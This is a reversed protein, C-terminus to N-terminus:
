PDVPLPRGPEPVIPVAAFPIPTTAPGDSTGISAGTEIPTPDTPAAPSDASVASGGAVLVIAAIALARRTEFRGPAHRVGTTADARVDDIPHARHLMSTYRTDDDVARGRAGCGPQRGPTMALTAALAPTEVM